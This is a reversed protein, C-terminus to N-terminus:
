AGRDGRVAHGPQAGAARRPACRSAARSLTDIPAGGLAPFAVAAASSRAAARAESIVGGTKLLLKVIAELLEGGVVDLVADFSNRGTADAFTELSTAYDYVNDAGLSRVWAAKGASCVGTVHVGPYLLKALQVATHGVGGSAGTVLLKQGPQLAARELAQWSTLAVLPVAAAHPLPLKDTAPAPALWDERFLAYEAYCGQVTDNPLYAPSLGYVRDGM